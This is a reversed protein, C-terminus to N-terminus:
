GPMKSIKRHANFWFMARRLVKDIIEPPCPESSLLTLWHQDKGPEKSVEIISRPYLCHVIFLGKPKIPNYALLFKDM